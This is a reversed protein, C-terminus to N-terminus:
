RRFLFTLVVDLGTQLSKSNQTCLKKKLSPRLRANDRSNLFSSPIGYEVGPANREDFKRGDDINGTHAQRHPGNIDWKGGTEHLWYIV